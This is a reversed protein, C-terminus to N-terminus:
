ARLRDTSHTAELTHLSRDMFASYASSVEERWALMLSREVWSSEPVSRIAAGGLEAFMAQQSRLLPVPDLGLRVTLHLKLRLLVPVDRFQEVPQELWEQLRRRGSETAQMRTRRPGITSREPSSPTIASKAQLTRLSRYVVPNAASWIQGLMTDPGLEKLLAFGHRPEEILLGLVVWDAQSWVGDVNAGTV